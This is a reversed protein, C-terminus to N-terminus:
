GPDVHATSHISYLKNCKTYSLIIFPSSSSTITKIAGFFIVVIIQKFPRKTRHTLKSDVSIEEVQLDPYGDGRALPRGPHGLRRDGRRQGGQQM